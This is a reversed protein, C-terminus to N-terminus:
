FRSRAVWGSASGRRRVRRVAGALGIAGVGVALVSAPEPVPQFNFLVVDNGGTTSVGNATINGFYSVQFTGALSNDPFVANVRGGDAVGNFVGTIANPTQNDLIGFVDSSSPTFGANVVVSLSAGDVTVTGTGRVTLRGYTTNGGAPDFASGSLLTVFTSGPRLLVPNNVGDSGIKPNGPTLFERMAYLYGNPMVTVGNGSAPAITGNGLLIDRVVVRGSGTASGSTNSVMLAGLEVATGGAYTNAATLELTAPGSKMLSTAASGSIVGSIVSRGSPALFGSSGQQTYTVVTRSEFPLGASGDDLALGNQLTVVGTSQLSGLQLYQGSRLFYLNTGSTSNWVLTQGAGGVNVTLNGNVAAFGGSGRDDVMTSTGFNWNVQNFDRGLGRSFTSTGGNCDVELMGGRLHLVNSTGFNANPGDIRARIAGQNIYVDLPNLQPTTGTLVMTGTGSKAVAGATNFTAGVNFFTNSGGLVFVNQQSFSPDTIIGNDLTFTFSGTGSGPREVIIGHTTVTHGGLNVSQGSGGPEFVITQPSIDNALTANASSSSPKYIVNEGAAASSLATEDRTTGLQATVQSGNYAAFRGYFSGSSSSIKGTLIAYPTNSTSGTSPVIVGNVTPITVTALLQAQSGSFGPMIGNVNFEVTGTGLGGPPYQTVGQQLRDHNVGLYLQVASAATTGGAFVGITAHGSAAAIENLHFTSTVGSTGQVNLSGGGHFRIVGNSGNFIESGDRVTVQAGGNITLDYDIGATNELWLKSGNRIDIRSGFGSFEVAGITSAYGSAFATGNAVTTTLNDLILTTGFGGRYTLPATTLTANRGVTLTHGTSTFPTNVGWRPGLVRVEGIATDASFSPLNYTAGDFTGFVATDATGPVGGPTWSGASAADTGSYNWFYTSQATAVPCLAVSVAFAAIFRVCYFM